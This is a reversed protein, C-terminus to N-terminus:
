KAERSTKAVLKLTAMLIERLLFLLASVLSLMALIFLVMVTINIDFCLFAGLFLIAIVACVLISTITSLTIACDILKARKSLTSIEVQLAVAGGTPGSELKAELVRVRDTVRGLRNTLVNLIMAIASLLFVPAVAMQIAHAVGSVTNIELM